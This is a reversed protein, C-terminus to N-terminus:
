GRSPRRADAALTQQADPAEHNAEAVSLPWASKKVCRRTYAAIRLLQSLGTLVFCRTWSNTSRARRIGNSVLMGSRHSAFGTSSECFVQFSKRRLSHALM